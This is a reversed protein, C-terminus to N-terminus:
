KKRTKNYDLYDLKKLNKDLMTIIDKDADYAIYKTAYYSNPANELKYINDKYISLVYWNINNKNDYSKELSCAEDDCYLGVFYKNNHKRIELGGDSPQKTTWSGVAKELYNNQQVKSTGYSLISIGLILIFLLLKKM